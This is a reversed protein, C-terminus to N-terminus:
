QLSVETVRSGQRRTGGTIRGDPGRTVSLEIPADAESKLREVREIVGEIESRVAELTESISDVRPAVAIQEAQRQREEGAEAMAQKRDQINADVNAADAKIATERLMREEQIRIENEMRKWAIAIDNDARDRKIQNENAAQAQDMQTDAQQKAADSQAKIVDPDPQPEQPQMKAKQGMREIADEAQKGLKFHRSFATLLDSVEEMGVVGAEVAPAMASTFAAFGDIFGVMNQQARSQDEQITSDTEIDIRFQRLIDTGMVQRVEEWSPTNAAQVALPPPPTGQQQAVALAATALEKQEQTPLAMNTMLKLTETSFQEGIIEAKLRIIDRAFRQVEKQKAVMRMSGFQVKIRQAQATENPDTDGRMFDAIGTIEFIVRKINDRQIILERIVVILQQVPWMWILHDLSGGGALFAAAGTSPVLEGDDTDKMKVIEEVNSAYIGRARIVHIIRHIRRTISDLEKAQDIYQKYPVVPEMDSSDTVYVLPRPFPYFGKLQLPDDDIRLPGDSHTSDAIILVQRKKKDWIQWVTLRKFVDPVDKPDKDKDANKEVHDLDITRGIEPNIEIAKERTVRYRVAIWPVDEWTQAPGFRVDDWQVHRARVNEYTVEEDFIIPDYVVMSCGRGVLTYDFVANNMVHDFDYDDLTASLAREMVQSTVKGIQDDDGFRRRVDSSPTSNYLSPGQVDINSYLINYKAGRIDSDDASRREDRYRDRTQRAFKRWGEEVNSALDISSKWFRWIGGPPKGADLRTELTGAGTTDGGVTSVGRSVTAM